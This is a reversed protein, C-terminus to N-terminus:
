STPLQVRRRVGGEGDLIETQDPRQQVGIVLPGGLRMARREFPDQALGTWGQRRTADVSGIVAPLYGGREGAGVVEEGVAPVGRPDVVPEAFADVRSRVAEVALPTRRVGGFDRVRTQQGDGPEPIPRFQDAVDAAVQCRRQEM